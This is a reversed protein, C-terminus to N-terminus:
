FGQAYWKESVDNELPTTERVHVCKEYTGVPTKVKEDISVIEVRDMAKKPALEQYYKDGTHIWHGNFVDKTKEHKNWYYAAISDGRILM